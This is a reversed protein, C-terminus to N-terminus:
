VHGQGAHLEGVADPRRAVPAFSAQFANYNQIGASDLLALTTLNPARTALPRRPGVAGAGPPAANLNPIAMWLRRGQSGVYGATVSSGWIEKEIMVNSRHLYSAKSDMAVAAVSGSLLPQGVAPFVPLGTRLFVDPVGGSAAASTAAYTYTFPTNRLVANSGMSSPFYSIGYGGRVVTGPRVTAAFGIRPAINGYDTKIGGTGGLVFELTDPNINSLEGDKETLPTFVDYRVGLNLTLWDKARWDDQFFISPEWTNLETNVLLAARLVQAPLGLMFAAVADGGAGAGNNTPAATYTFM